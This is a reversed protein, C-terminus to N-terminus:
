IHMHVPIKNNHLGTASKLPYVTHKNANETSPMCQLAVPLCNHTHIHQLHKHTTSLARIERTQYLQPQTDHM